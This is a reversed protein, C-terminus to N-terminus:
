SSQSAAAFRNASVFGFIGSNIMGSLAGGNSVPILLKVAVRSLLSESFQVSVILIWDFTSHLRVRVTVRVSGAGFVM